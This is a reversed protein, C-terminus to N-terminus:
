HVLDDKKGPTSIAACATNGIICPLVLKLYSLRFVSPITNLKINFWKKGKNGFHFIEVTGVAHTVKEWLIKRKTKIPKGKASIIM